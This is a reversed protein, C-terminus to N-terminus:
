GHTTKTRERRIGVAEDYLFGATRQSDYRTDNERAFREQGKNYYFDEVLSVCEIKTM